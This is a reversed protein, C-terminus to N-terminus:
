SEPAGQNTADIITRTAPQENTETPEVGVPAAADSTRRPDGITRPWPGHEPVSWEADCIGCRFQDSETRASGTHRGCSPCQARAPREQTLHDLLSGGVARQQTAPPTREDGTPVLPDLRDNHPGPDPIVEERPLIITTNALPDNTTPEVGRDDRSDLLRTWEPLTAAAAVLLAPLLEVQDLLVVGALCIVLAAVVSAVLPVVRSTM